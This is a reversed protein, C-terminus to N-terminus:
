RPTIAAVRVRSDQAQSEVWAAGAQGEGNAAIAASKVNGGVFLWRSLTGGADLTRLALVQRAPKEATRGLVGILTGRALPALMPRTADVLSDALARTPGFPGIGVRWTALYVGPKPRPPLTDDSPSEGTYWLIHGGGTDAALAPGVSPCGPLLWHDAAVLTDFAFTDGGDTSLALRPDRMDNAAGRYAIAVERGGSGRASAVALRCCACVEGAVRRDADWTAGADVSRAAYIEGRQPEGPQSKSARGDIWAVFPRNGPLVAVAMFGHYGSLSDGHDSNVLAEAAWTRGGDRSARAAIDSADPNGPRRTAWAAVLLANEGWAVVPRSEAYSAVGHPAANLRVPESWHRGSDASTAIWADSGASERTVWTLAIRGRDDIALSPDTAAARALFPPTVEHVQPWEPRVPACAAAALLTLGAGAQLAHLAAARFRM